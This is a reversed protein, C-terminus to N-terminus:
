EDASIKLEKAKEIVASELHAPLQEYRCFELTFRGRGQTMSRLATTFDTMEAMPVEAEILQLNDEDPNMGLVRGRR